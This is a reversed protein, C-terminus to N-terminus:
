GFNPPVKVECTSFFPIIVPNVSRKSHKSIFGTEYNTMYQETRSNYNVISSDSISTEFEANGLKKLNGEIAFKIDGKM